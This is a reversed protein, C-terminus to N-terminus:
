QFDRTRIMFFVHGKIDNFSVKGIIRSDGGQSRNDFLIFYEDQKLSVPFSISNDFLVTTGKVYPETQFYGNIKLGEETIDVIDGNQAVIRGVENKGNLGKFVVISGNEYNKSLRNYFVVDRDHLLSEMNIGSNIHIGVVFQLIIFIGFVIWGIKLLLNLGSYFLASRKKPSDPSPAKEESIDQTVTEPMKDSAKPNKNRLNFFCSLSVKNRKM